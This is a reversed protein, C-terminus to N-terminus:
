AAPRRDFRNDPLSDSARVTAGPGGASFSRWGLRSRVLRWDIDGSNFIRSSFSAGYLPLLHV